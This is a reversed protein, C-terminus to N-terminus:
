KKPASKKAPAKKATSTGKPRGPSKKKPAIAEAAVEKVVEEVKATAEVKIEEIKEDAKEALKEAENLLQDVQKDLKKRAPVVLGKIKTVLKKFM